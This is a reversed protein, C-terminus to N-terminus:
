GYLGRASGYLPSNMFGGDQRSYYNMMGAQAILGAGGFINQDGGRRLSAVQQATQIYPNLQNIEFARADEQAMAQRAGFLTRMNQDRAQADLANLNSIGRNYGSLITAVNYPNVGGRGIGRLGTALGQQMQNLQNTYVQSPLGRRAMMQADALNQAIRANPQYVPRINNRELRRARRRQFLGRGISLLGSGAGIALGLAM